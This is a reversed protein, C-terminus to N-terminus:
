HYIVLIGLNELAFIVLNWPKKLPSLPLLLPTLGGKASPLYRVIGKNDVRFSAFCIDSLKM